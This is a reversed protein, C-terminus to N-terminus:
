KNDQNMTHYFFAGRSQLMPMAMQLQGPIIHAQLSQLVHQSQQLQQQSHQLQSQNVAQSQQSTPTHSQSPHSHATQQQQQQCPPQKEQQLDKEITNSAARIIALDEDIGSHKAKHKNLHASQAFTKKCIHCEFPREGTHTRMHRQLASIYRFEKNCVECTQGSKSFSIHITSASSQGDTMKDNDTAASEITNVSINHKKSKKKKGESSSQNISHGFTQYQPICSTSPTIPPPVMTPLTPPTVQSLAQFPSGALSITSLAPQSILNAISSVTAFSM